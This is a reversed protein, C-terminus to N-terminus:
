DAASASRHLKDDALVRLFLSQLKNAAERGAVLVEEHDLPVDLLGAGLNSVVSVVACRLGMHNAAIVELVTSMGVLTAGLTGLMRVEAPTEYSPGSVGAYIGDQLEISAAQAHVHLRARLERDYARSMDPFRPGWANPPEGELPNKGMLNLHDRLLVLDGPRLSPDVGGSANTMILVKAGLLAGLRVPFVTQAASLGQYGHVRGRYYLVVGSPTSLLQFEMPHGVIGHAAFPLLEQIAGSALVESGLDIALGSGSVLVTTPRPWGKADWDSVAAALEKALHDM